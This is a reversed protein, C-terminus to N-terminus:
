PAPEPTFDSPPDKVWFDTEVRKAIRWGQATRVLEDAYTCGLLFLHDGEPRALQMPNFLMTRATATDGDIRILPLGILHQTIPFPALARGLWPKIEAWRGEAGGTARYDIEADPTFVDDLADYDRADIAFVYAALLQQIEVIDAASM